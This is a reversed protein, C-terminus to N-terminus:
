NSKPGNKNKRCYINMDLATPHDESIGFGSITKFYFYYAQDKRELKFDGQFGESIDMRNDHCGNNVRGIV